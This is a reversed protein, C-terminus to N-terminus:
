RGNLCATSPWPITKIPTRTNQYWRIRRTFPGARPSSWIFHARNFGRFQIRAATKSINWMDKVRFDFLMNGQLFGACTKESWKLFLPYLNDVDDLEYSHWCITFIWIQKHFLFINNNSTSNAIALYGVQTYHGPSAEHANITWEENKPGPRQLFFPISYVSPRSCQPDSEQFTPAASSPNFNPVLEVPCNPTSQYPGTFHFLNITKPYLTAM